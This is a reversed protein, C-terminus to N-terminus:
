LTTGAVRRMLGATAPIEGATGPKEIGEKQPVVMQLDDQRSIRILSRGRIRRVVSASQNVM